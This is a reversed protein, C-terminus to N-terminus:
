KYEIPDIKDILNIGASNIESLLGDWNTKFYDNVENIVKELSNSFDAFSLEFMQSPKDYSSLLYNQTRYLKSVIKEPDSQIGKADIFYFRKALTKISEKNSSIKKKLEEFKEGKLDSLREQLLSL